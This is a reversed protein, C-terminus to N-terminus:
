EEINRHNGLVSFSECLGSTSTRIGGGSGRIRAAWAGSDQAARETNLTLRLVDEVRFGLGEATRRSLQEREARLEDLSKAHTEPEGLRPV